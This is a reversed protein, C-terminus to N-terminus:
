MERSMQRAGGHQKEDDPLSGHNVALVLFFDDLEDIFNEVHVQLTDLVTLTVAVNEAILASAQIAFPLILLLTLHAAGTASYEAFDAYEEAWANSDEVRRLYASSRNVGPKLHWDALAEKEANSLEVDGDTPSLNLGKKLARQLEETLILNVSRLSRRTLIVRILQM